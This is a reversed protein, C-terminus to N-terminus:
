TSKDKCEPGTNYKVLLNGNYFLKIWRGPLERVEITYGALPRDKYKPVKWIVGNYSIENVNNVK